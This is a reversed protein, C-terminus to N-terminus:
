CTCPVHMENAIQVNQSFTEESADEYHQSRRLLQLDPCFKHLM